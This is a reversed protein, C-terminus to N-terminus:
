PSFIGSWKKCDSLVAVFFFYRMSVDYGVLLVMAIVLWATSKGTLESLTEISKATKGFHNILRLKNM